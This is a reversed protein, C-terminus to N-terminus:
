GQINMPPVSASASVGIRKGGSAFVQSVPFSQSAPFSQLHPHYLIVHNSPMVPEISMLKLLSQSITFSLSAATSCDMPDCLTLCSHTVSCCCINQFCSETPHLNLNQRKLRGLINKGFIKFRLNSFNTPTSHSAVSLLICLPQYQSKLCGSPAKGHTEWSYQVSKRKQRYYLLVLDTEM